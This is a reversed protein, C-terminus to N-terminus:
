GVTQHCISSLLPSIVVIYFIQFVSKKKKGAYLTLGLRSGESVTAHLAIEGQFLCGVLLVLFYILFPASVDYSDSM